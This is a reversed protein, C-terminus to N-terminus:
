VSFDNEPNIAFPLVIRHCVINYNCMFKIM